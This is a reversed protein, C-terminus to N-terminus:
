RDLTETKGAGRVLVLRAIDCNITTERSDQHIRREMTAEFEPHLEKPVVANAEYRTGAPM